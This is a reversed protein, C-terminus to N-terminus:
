NFCKLKLSHIERKITASNCTYVSYPEVDHTIVSGMGIISYAGIRTKPAIVSGIGIFANKEVIVSGGLTSSTMLVNKGIKTHHGIKSDIISVNNGIEVYPGFSSEGIFINDGLTSEPYLLTELILNNAFSYGKSKSELYIRERAQNVYQPGMAVFIKYKNPPYLSCV